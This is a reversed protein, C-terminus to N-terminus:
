ETRHVEDVNTINTLHTDIRESLVRTSDKIKSLESSMETIDSSVLRANESDWADPFSEVLNGLSVLEHEIAEVQTNIDETSKKLEAFSLKRQGEM